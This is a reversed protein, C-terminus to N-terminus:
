PVAEDPLWKRCLGLLEDYLHPSRALHVSEVQAPSEEEASEEVTVDLEEIMNVKTSLVLLLDRPDHSRLEFLVENGHRACIRYQRNM